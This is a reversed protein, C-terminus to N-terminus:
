HPTVSSHIFNIKEGQHIDEIHKFLPSSEDKNLLNQLHQKGREYLSLSTQGIYLAPKHDSDKSGCSVCSIEYVVNKDFCNQSGDGTSCPLCKSRGCFM